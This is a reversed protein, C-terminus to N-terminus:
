KNKKKGKKKEKKDKKKSKKEGTIEKIFEQIHNEEEINEKLSTKKSNGETFPEFDKTELYKEDVLVKLLEAGSNDFYNELFRKLVFNKYDDFGISPSYLYIRGQKETALYHKEVLIKLFTSVTNQHPKPEPYIDMLERFYIQGKHWILQMIEEESPTLTQLMM